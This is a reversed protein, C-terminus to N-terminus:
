NEIEILERISYPIVKGNKDVKGKTYTKNATKIGDLILQESLHGKKLDAKFKEWISIEYTALKSNEMILTSGKKIGKCKRNKLFVEFIGVDKMDVYDYFKPAYFSAKVLGENKLYGLKFNDVLDNNLLNEYGKKNMFLSDTDCYYVNDRKAIKLYKILLMRSYSTIFSSIAVFSELSNKNTKKLAYVRKDIIYVEAINMITGLYCIDNDLILKEKREFMLMLIERNENFFKSDRKVLEYEIDKQGWKGYQNNLFLKSIETDIKNGKKSYEKKLSYFFDVFDNFINNAEYVNLEHIQIIKGYKKVFDIEPQCISIKFIGYTFVSKGNVTKLIYANDKELQITANIICVYNNKIAFEYIKNLKNSGYLAQSGNFVLKTPVKKTKMISPYMSNIDTKYVNNFTGLKFNDTIGGKYSERELKIARKWNHIYIKNLEPNYFKHRFASFSLSGITARLKSLDNMLLFNILKKIFQYIIETDRKCYIELDMDNVNDFNVKLKPFGVSLGIDELPKRIYNLTDWLHLTYVLSKNIRKKFTMIFTTGKIYHNELFWKRKFLERFGNLIKFDFYCNHAFMIISKVDKSYRNELDDWFLNPQYWYSKKIIQNKDRKWFISCGLKFYLKEIGVEKISTTETDVFVFDNQMVFKDIKRFEHFHNTRKNRM